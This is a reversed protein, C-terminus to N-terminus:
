WVPLVCVCVCVCVCVVMVAELLLLIAFSDRFWFFLGAASAVCCSQCLLRCGEWFATDVPRLRLALLSVTVAGFDVINQNNTRLVM